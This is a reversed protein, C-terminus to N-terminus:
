YKMYWVSLYGQQAEVLHKGPNNKYNDVTLYEKRLTRSQQWQIQGHKHCTMYEWM